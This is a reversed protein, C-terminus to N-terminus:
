TGAQEEPQPFELHRRRRDIWQQAKSVAEIIQALENGWFTRGRQWSGDNQRLLKSVIIKHRYTNGEASEWVCARIKGACSTFTPASNADENQITKM